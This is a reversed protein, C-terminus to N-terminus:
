IFELRFHEQIYAAFKFAPSMKMVFINATYLNFFVVSVIKCPILICVKANM